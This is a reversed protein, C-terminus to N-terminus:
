MVKKTGNLDQKGVFRSIVNVNKKLKLANNVQKGNKTLNSLRIGGDSRLILTVWPLFYLLKEGEFSKNGKKTDKSLYTSPTFRRVTGRKPV